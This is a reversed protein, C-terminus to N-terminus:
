VLNQPTPITKLNNVITDTLSIANVEYVEEISLMNFCNKLSLPPMGSVQQGQWFGRHEGGKRGSSQNSMGRNGKCGLSCIQGTHFETM